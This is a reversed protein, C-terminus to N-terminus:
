IEEDSDEEKQARPLKSYAQQLQENQVHTYIQTTSIDSHGLLEQVTRLDVDSNLLHTAFSHRLTHPSINKSIGLQKQKEKIVNYVYQRSLPHGKQNIFFYLNNHNINFKPRIHKFYYDMDSATEENILVVREKSGKGVIRLQLHSLNVKKIQLQCLESVRLGAVYIVELLLRKFFQEDDDKDFSDFLQKVEQENLFVPLHDQAKKISLNSVVSPIDYNLFAYNHLNKITTLNHAVTSKAQQQLSEILFEEVDESTIDEFDEIQCEKLYDSYKRLDNRYSDITAPSKNEIVKIQYLYDDIAQSVKM